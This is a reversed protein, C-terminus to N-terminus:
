RLQERKEAAQLSTESIQAGGAFQGYAEAVRARFRKGFADCYNSFMTGSSGEALVACGGGCYLAFRCKRCTPNSAVTRSRWMGNREDNMVVTGTDDVNGIRIRQDGTREWCAYIDGFADFIYMRNHAGCFSTMTPLAAKRGTFISLVRAMLGDDTTGIARMRPDSERIKALAVNLEWSNFLRARERVEAATEYSHVPAAYSSFHKNGTWGREEFLEALEPLRAFNDRDINLRVSVAAGRRLALDINACIKDFSGSGDAYIRRQDHDDAPGDLTIQLYSIGDPGLLDEYAELETGNSIAGFQSPGRKQAGRVFHEIARRSAALLPEGGFFTFQRPVKGDAIVSHRQEIQPLSDLIRDAMAPTMTRLLHKLAPDTRMNDQFCYGCRLNCSYTPMIVYSPMSLMQVNHLATVNRVFFDEEEQITRETLYGRRRLTELTAESPAVAVDRLIENASWEGYLPKPAPSAELSRVYAAVGRSVKDYAGTYGHVLLLHDRDDPLDVYVTYSSTRLSFPATTAPEELLM